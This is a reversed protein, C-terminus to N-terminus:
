CVRVRACVLVRNVDAGCRVCMVRAHAHVLAFRVFRVRLMRPGPGPAARLDKAPGPSHYARGMEECQKHM